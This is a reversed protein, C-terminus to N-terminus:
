KKILNELSKDIASNLCKYYDIFSYEDDQINNNIKYIFKVNDNPLIQHIIEIYINHNDRLWDIVQQHTPALAYINKYYPTDHLIGTIGYHGFCEENFDLIKLKLAIYYPIFINSKM